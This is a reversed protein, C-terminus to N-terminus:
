CEAQQEGWRAAATLGDRSPSVRADKGMRDAIQDLSWQADTVDLYGLPVESLSSGPPVGYTPFEAAYRRTFGSPGLQDWQAAHTPEHGLLFVQDEESLQPWKNTMTVVHDITFGKIGPPTLGFRVRFDPPHGSWIINLVLRTQETPCYWSGCPKLWPGAPAEAGLGAGEHGGAGAQAAPGAGGQGPSAAGTAAASPTVSIVKGATGPIGFGPSAQTMKLNGASATGAGIISGVSAGFGYAILGASAVHGAWVAAGIIDGADVAFGSPDIHNVPDNVVYSYRNLGQSFFPSQMIPDASTFRAAFPDYIRGKMDILGLDRDHEHGTFGARTIEPNPPDVSMGFPDFQQRFSVQNNDSITDVSGLVDTHFYLTRDGGDKRVIEGLERGAAYLRFREELTDGTSTLVREYLGGVYHRTTDTDRRVVRAQDATYEFRTM